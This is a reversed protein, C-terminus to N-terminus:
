LWWHRLNSRFGRPPIEMLSNSNNRDHRINIRSNLTANVRFWYILSPLEPNTIGLFSISPLKFRVFMQLLLYCISRPDFTWPSTILFGKCVSFYWVWYAMLPQNEFVSIHRPLSNCHLTLPVPTPLFVLDSAQFTGDIRKWHDRRFVELFMLNFIVSWHQRTQCWSSKVVM